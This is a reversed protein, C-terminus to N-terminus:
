SKKSAVDLIMFNYLPHHSPCCLDFGGGRGSPSNMREKLGRRATTLTSSLNCYSAETAGLSGRRPYFHQGLM